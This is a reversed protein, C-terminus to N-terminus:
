RRLRPTRHGGWTAEVPIGMALVEGAEPLLEAEERSHEVLMAAPYLRQRGVADNPRQGVATTVSVAPASVPLGVPVTGSAISDRRPPAPKETRPPSHALEAACAVALGLLPIALIALIAGYVCAVMLALAEAMAAFSAFVFAGAIAFVGGAMSAVATASAYAVVAPAAVAASVAVTSAAPAAVATIAGVTSAEVAGIFSSTSSVLGSFSELGYAALWTCHQLSALALSASAFGLLLSYAVDQTLLACGETQPYVSCSNSTQEWVASSSLAVSNLTM